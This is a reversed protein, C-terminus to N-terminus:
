INDKLKYEINKKIKKNNYGKKEVDINYPVDNNFSEKISFAVLRKNLELDRDKIRNKGIEAKKKKKTNIIRAGQYFTVYSIYFVGLDSNNIERLCKINNSNIYNNKM